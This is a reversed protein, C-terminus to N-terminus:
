PEACWAHPLEQSARTKTVEMCMQQDKPADPQLLALLSLSASHVLALGPSSAHATSSPLISTLCFFFSAM